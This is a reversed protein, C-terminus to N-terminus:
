PLRASALTSDHAALQTALERYGAISLHTNNPSYLDKIRFKADYFAAHLPVVDIALQRGFVRLAEDKRLAQERSELYVSSKDPIVIVLVRESSSKVTALKGTKFDDGLRPRTFDHGLFLNLECEIHSFLRCGNEVQKIWVGGDSGPRHQVGPFLYYLASGLVYKYGFTGAFMSKQRDSSQQSDDPNKRALLKPGGTHLEQKGDVTKLLSEACDVALVDRANREVVQIIVTKPPKGLSAIYQPYDRCLRGLRVTTYKQEPSFAYAQWVGSISFSDGIVLIEADGLREVSGVKGVITPQAVNWGFAREPLLGLRTLDGSLPQLFHLAM